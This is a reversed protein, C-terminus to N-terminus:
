DHYSLSKASRLYTGDPQPEFVSCREMEGGYVHVTVSPRDDLANGLSHYEFPPILAGSSGVGAVSHVQEVFRCCGGATEEVLELQTVEMMGEVVGEVCWIGAHDHVPTHQGPGWTMVVVTLELEEDRHLLRRAYTDPRPEFFREDLELGCGGLVETLHGQVARTIARTGDRRVASRLREVLADPSVAPAAPHIVAM